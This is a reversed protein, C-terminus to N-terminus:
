TLTHTSIIGQKLTVSQFAFYPLYIISMYSDSIIKDIAEKQIKESVDHDVRSPLDTLSDQLVVAQFTKM